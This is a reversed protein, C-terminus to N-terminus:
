KFVRVESIIDEPMIHRFRSWHEHPHRAKKRHPPDGFLFRMDNVADGDDTSGCGGFARCLHEDGEYLFSIDM